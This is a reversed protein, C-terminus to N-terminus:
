FSESGAWFLSVLIIVIPAIINHPKKLRRYLLGESAIVWKKFMNTSVPCPVDEGMGPTVCVIVTCIAAGSASIFYNRVCHPFSVSSDDLM